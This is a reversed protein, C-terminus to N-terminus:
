VWREILNERWQTQVSDVRRAYPIGVACLRRLLVARARDRPKRLVDLALEKEHDAMATDSRFASRPRSRPLASQPVKGPLKVSALDEEIAVALGCRPAEPT